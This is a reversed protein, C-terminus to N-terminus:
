IILYYKEYKVEIRVHKLVFQFCIVRHLWNDWHKEEKVAICVQRENLIIIKTKIFIICEM